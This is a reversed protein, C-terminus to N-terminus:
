VCGWSDLEGEKTSMRVQSSVMLPWSIKVASLTAMRTLMGAGVRRM